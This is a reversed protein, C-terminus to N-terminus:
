RSITSGWCTPTIRPWARRWGTRCLSVGPGSGTQLCGFTAGAGQSLVTLGAPHGQDDHDDNDTDENNWWCRSQSRGRHYHLPTGPASRQHLVRGSGSVTLFLRRRSCEQHPDVLEININPGPDGDEFDQVFYFDNDKWKVLIKFVQASERRLRPRPSCSRSSCSSPRSSHNSLSSKRSGLSPTKSTRFGPGPSTRPQLGDQHYVEPPYCRPVSCPYICGNMNGKFLYHQYKNLTPPVSYHFMIFQIWQFM